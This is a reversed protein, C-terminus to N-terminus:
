DLHTRIYIHTHLINFHSLYYIVFLLLFLHRFSQNHQRYNIFRCMDWKFKSISNMYFSAYKFQMPQTQMHGFFSGFDIFCMFHWLVRFYGFSMAPSFIAVLLVLMEELWDTHTDMSWSHFSHTQISSIAFFVRLSFCWRMDIEQQYHVLLIIPVSSVM